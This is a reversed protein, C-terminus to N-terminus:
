AAGGLTAIATHLWAPWGEQVSRSRRPHLGLDLIVYDKLSMDRLTSAEKGRLLTILSPGGTEAVAEAVHLDEVELIELPAVDDGQLVGRTALADRLLTMFVPGGPSAGAVVVVPHFRRRGTFRHKTLAEQRDRLLKITRDIQTAKRVITQIDQAVSEDSVGAFTRLQVGSTTAELVIWSPGYDVALDAVQHRRGFAARLETEGYIRQLPGTGTMGAVIESVYHEFLHSYSGRVRQAQAQDGRNDLERLIDYLPWTGTARDVVLDPDLVTLHGTAWRVVPYQRITRVSWMVGMDDGEDRHMQALQEPTATVLRLVAGLRADSWGLPAFYDPALHPTGNSATAWMAACVTVLDDLRVGTADEFATVM